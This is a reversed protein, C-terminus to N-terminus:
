GKDAVLQGNTAFADLEFEDLHVWVKEPSVHIADTIADTVSRVLARKQDLTRGKAIKITVMPM